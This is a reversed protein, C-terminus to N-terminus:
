TEAPRSSSIATLVAAEDSAVDLPALIRLGQEARAVNKKIYRADAPFLHSRWYNVLILASQRARMLGVLLRAELTSLGTVSAYGAILHEAGGLPLTSDTVVHSAAIALDQIRPSRCGDGFDIFGIGKSTVMINFPSPDNHTVQWAVNAIEPEVSGAYDAMAVRVADAVNGAPLYQEFEMLRPWCGIHWLIPREAAPLDVHALALDLHALANGTRFLLDPTLTERHLPVGDIRTQLYGCVGDEELLLAGSNTRLVQPAVFGTAGQLGAMAAAQFRFSDLAEPRTSTKLILRRGDPLHIEATREVESSLTAVAGTLGYHRELLAASM